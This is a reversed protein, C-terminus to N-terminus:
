RWGLPVGPLWDFVYIRQQSKTYAIDPCTIGWTKWQRPTWSRQSCLQTARSVTFATGPVQMRNSHISLQLCISVKMRAAEEKLKWSPIDIQRGIVYSTWCLQHHFFPAFTWCFAPNVHAGHEDLQPLFEPGGVAVRNSHISLQLCISVKM